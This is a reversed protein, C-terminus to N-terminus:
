LKRFWYKLRSLCAHICAHVCVYYMFLTFIRTRDYQRFSLRPGRAQAITGTSFVFSVM